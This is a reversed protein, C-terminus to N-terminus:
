VRSDELEGTPAGIGQGPSQRRRTGRQSGWDGGRPEPTKLNGQPLGPGRGQVRAQTRNTGEVRVKEGNFGNGSKYRCGSIRCIQFKWVTEMTFVYHM